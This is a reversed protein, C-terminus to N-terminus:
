PEQKAQTRLENQIREWAAQVAQEGNPGVQTPAQKLVANAFLGFKSTRTHDRVRKTVGLGSGGCSVFVDRLDSFFQPLFPDPPHGDKGSLTPPLEVSAIAAILKDHQTVLERLDREIEKVSPEEEIFKLVTSKLSELDRILSPKLEDLSRFVGRAEKATARWEADWQKAEIYNQLAQEVATRNATSLSVGGDKEIKEFGKSSISLLKQSDDKSTVKTECDKVM